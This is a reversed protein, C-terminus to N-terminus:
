EDDLKSFYKVEAQNYGKIYKGPSRSIDATINDAISDIMDNTIPLMNSVPMVLACNKIKKARGEACRIGYVPNYMDREHCISLGVSIVGTFITEKSDVRQCCVCVDFQRTLGKYDMFQGQRYTIKM